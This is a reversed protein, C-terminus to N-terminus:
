SFFWPIRFEELDSNYFKMFDRHEAQGTVAVTM